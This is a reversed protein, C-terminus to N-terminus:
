KRHYSINKWKCSFRITVCPTRKQASRFSTGRFTAKEGDTPRHTRRDYNAKLSVNSIKSRWVNTIHNKSFIEFKWYFVEFLSNFLELWDWQQWLSINIPKSVISIVGTKIGFSKMFNWGQSYICYFQM